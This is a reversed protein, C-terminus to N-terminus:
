LLNGFFQLDRSAHQLRNLGVVVVLQRAANEGLTEHALIRAHQAQVLFFHGRLEFLGHSRGLQRTQLFEPAGADRSRHGPHVLPAEAAAPRPTDQWRQNRHHHHHQDARSYVPPPLPITL